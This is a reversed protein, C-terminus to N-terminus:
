RKETASAIEMHPEQGKNGRFHIVNVGPKIEVELKSQVNWTQPLLPIFDVLANVNEPEPQRNKSKDVASLRVRYKGPKLALKQDTRYEGKVIAVNRPSARFELSEFSVMGAEVPHGNFHVEGSVEGRPESRSCGAVAAILTASLAFILTKHTIFCM